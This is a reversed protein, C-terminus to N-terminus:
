EILNIGVVKDKDKPTFLFFQIEEDAKDLLEVDYGMFKAFGFLEYNPIFNVHEFRVDGDFLPKGTDFFYREGYWQSDLGRHDTNPKSIMFGYKSIRALERLFGYTNFMHEIVEFCIAFDVENDAYPLPSKNFNSVRCEKVKELVGVSADSFIIDEVSSFQPAKQLQLPIEGCGVDGIIKYKPNWNRELHNLAQVWMFPSHSGQLHIGMREWEKYNRM